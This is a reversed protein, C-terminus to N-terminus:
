ARSLFEAINKREAIRAHFAKLVGFRPLVKPAAMQSMELAMFLVLDAFSFENNIYGEGNKNSKLIRQLSSYWQSVIHTYVESTITHFTIFQHFKYSLNSCAELILHSRSISKSDIPYLNLRKAVHVVTTNSDSMAVVNMKGNASQQVKEEYLCSHILHDGFEYEYEVGQDEFMVRILELRIQGTFFNLRPTYKVTSSSMRKSDSSTPLVVTALDIFTNDPKSNSLSSHRIHTSTLDITKVPTAIEVATNTSSSTPNHMINTNSRAVTRSSSALTLKTM